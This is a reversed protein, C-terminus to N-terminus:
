VNGSNPSTTSHVTAPAALPQVRQRERAAAASGSPRISVAVDHVPLGMGRELKDRLRGAASTAVARPDAGETTTLWALVNLKGRRNRISVKAQGIGDVRALEREALNTVAEAPYQLTGGEIRVLFVRSTAHPWLELLLIVLAIASGILSAVFFSVEPATRLRLVTSELNTLALGPMLWVALALALTAMALLIVVIRNFVSM